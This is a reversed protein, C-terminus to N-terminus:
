VFVFVSIYSGSESELIFTSPDNKENRRLGNNETIQVKRSITNKPKM